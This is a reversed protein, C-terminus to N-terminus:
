PSFFIIPTLLFVNIPMLFHNAIIFHADFKVRIAFENLLSTSSMKVCRAVDLDRLLVSSTCTSYLVSIVLVKLLRTNLNALWQHNLKPNGFTGLVSYQEYNM